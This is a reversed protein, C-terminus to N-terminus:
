LICRCLYLINLILKYRYNWDGPGLTNIQWTWSQLRRTSSSSARPLRTDLSSSLEASMELVESTFAELWSDNRLTVSSWLCFWLRSPLSRSSSSSFPLSCALSVVARYSITNIHNNHKGKIRHKM